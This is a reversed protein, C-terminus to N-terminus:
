MVSLIRNEKSRLSRFYDNKWSAIRWALYIIDNLENTGKQQSGGDQLYIIDNPEKTVGGKYTFSGTFGICVVFGRQPIQGTGADPSWPVM